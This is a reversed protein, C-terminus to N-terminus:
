GELRRGNDGLLVNLTDIHLMVADAVVDGATEQHVLCFRDLAIQTARPLTFAGSAESVLRISRWRHASWDIRGRERLGVLLRHVASKKIELHDGIERLTPSLGLSENIAAIFLLAQAQRATLGATNM